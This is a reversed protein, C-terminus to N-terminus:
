IMMPTVFNFCIICEFEDSIYNYSVEDSFNCLWLKWLPSINKHHVLDVKNSMNLKEDQNEVALIIFLCITTYANFAYCIFQPRDNVDDM